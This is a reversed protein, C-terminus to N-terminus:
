QLDKFYTTFKMDVYPGPNSGSQGTFDQDPCRLQLGIFPQWGMVNDANAYTGEASDNDGGNNANTYRFKRYMPLNLKIQKSKWLAQPNGPTAEYIQTPMLDYTRDHLIKYNDRDWRSRKSPIDDNLISPGFQTAPIAGTQGVTKNTGKFWGVMERVEVRNTTNGSFSVNFIGSCREAFIVDGARSYNNLGIDLHLPEVILWPTSNTQVTTDITDFSKLKKPIMKYATQRAVKEMQKKNMQAKKKGKKAM